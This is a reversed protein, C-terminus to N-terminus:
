NQRVNVLGLYLYSSKDREKITMFLAGDRVKIISEVRLSAMAAELGERVTEINNMSVTM